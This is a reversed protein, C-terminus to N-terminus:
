APHTRIVRALPWSYPKSPGKLLVVDDLKVNPQRVASKSRVQLQDLYDKSWIRQLHNQVLELRYSVNSFSGRRRYCSAFYAISGRSLSSTCKQLTESVNWTKFMVNRFWLKWTKFTVNRFVNWSKFMVNRFCKLKQVDRKQFMLKINKVDCKRSMEHQSHWMESVNWNQVKNARRICEIKQIKCKQFIEYKLRGMEPVNEHKSRWM